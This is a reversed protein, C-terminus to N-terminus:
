QDYLFNFCFNNVINNDFVDRTKRTRKTLITNTTTNKLRRKFAFGEKFPFYIEQMIILSQFDHYVTDILHSVFTSHMQPPKSTKDRISTKRTHLVPFYNAHLFTVQLFFNVWLSRPKIVLKM